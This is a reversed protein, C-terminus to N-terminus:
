ICLANASCPVSAPLCAPLCAPLSVPQSSACAHMRPPPGLSGSVARALGCRHRWYQKPWRLVLLISALYWAAVLLPQLQVLLSGQAKSWQTLGVVSQGLTM